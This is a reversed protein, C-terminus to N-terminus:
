RATSTTPAPAARAPRTTARSSGPSTWTSRRSISSRRSRTSSPSRTRAPSRASRRPSRRRPSRGPPSSSATGNRRRCAPSKTASSAHGASARRTRRTVADAFGDRDVALAGGAPVQHADAPACSSRTRRPAAGRAAPRRRQDRQRRLPLLQLLGARRAPRDPAGRDHAVPRMEHLVVPVGRRALQWAAESGALGGGIIHIPSIMARFRTARHRSATLIFFARWPPHRANRKSPAPSRPPVIRGGHREPFRPLFAGPPSSNHKSSHPRSARSREPDRLPTIGLDALDRSSLRMLENYTERYKRWARYTTVLRNSM